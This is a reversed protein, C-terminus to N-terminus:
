ISPIKRRISRRSMVLSKERWLRASGPAEAWRPSGRSQGCRPSWWGRCTQGWSSHWRGGTWRRRGWQPWCWRPWTLYSCPNNFWSEYGLGKNLSTTYSYLLSWSFSFLYKNRFYQKTELTIYQGRFSTVRDREQGDGICSYRRQVRDTDGDILLLKKLYVRIVLHGFPSFEFSM